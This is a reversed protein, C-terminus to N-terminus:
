RRVRFYAELVGKIHQYRRAYSNEVRILEVQHAQCIERKKKDRVAVVDEELHEMGDLEIVLVPHRQEKGQEYVM